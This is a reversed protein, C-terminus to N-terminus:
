TIRDDRTTVRKSYTIAKHLYRALYESYVTQNPKEAM